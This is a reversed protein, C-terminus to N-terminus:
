PPDEGDSHHFLIRSPQSILARVEDGVLTLDFLSIAAALMCVSGAARRRVPVSSVLSCAALERHTSPRRHIHIRPTRTPRPPPLKSCTITVLWILFLDKLPFVGEREANLREVRCGPCRPRYARGKKALLPEGLATTAGGGGGGGDM